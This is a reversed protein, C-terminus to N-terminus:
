HMRYMAHGGQNPLPKLVLGGEKKELYSMSINPDHEFILLWREKVAKEIVKKKIQLLEIPHNEFATMYSVKLHATTPIIDGMFIAKDKESEIEVSQHGACHGDTLVIKVGPILQFDGNILLLQQARELAGFDVNMYSARNRENPHTAEYWEKEQIIYQANPFAPKVGKKEHIVDGGAHDFHLHTNIVFNIESADVDQEALQDILSPGKTYKYIDYYRPKLSDGIGTDILIKKNNCLILLCNVSLEIRNDADAPMLKQWLTKPVIGFMLGGDLWFRSEEILIIKFDGVLM